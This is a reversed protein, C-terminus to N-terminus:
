KSLTVGLSGYTIPGGMKAADALTVKKIFTGYLGTDSNKLKLSGKLASAETTYYTSGGGNFHWGRLSIQAFAEIRFSKGFPSAACPNVGTGGKDPCATDFIPILIEVTKGAALSAQWRTFTDTCTGDFSTGSKSEVWPSTIDVHVNCDLGPHKLWGFGGPLEHGSSSQHPCAYKPDDSLSTGHEPFFQLGKFFSPDSECKSFTLPFVDAASFGGFKAQAFAQIEVSNIGLARALYLSFHEGGAGAPTETTVDVTGAANNVVASVVNSSGDLANGNAYPSAKVRQDAACPASTTVKACAQAVALAASDAGNQLQTKESYMAGVDVALAGFGLLAVILIAALPAIVGREKDEAECGQPQEKALRRM